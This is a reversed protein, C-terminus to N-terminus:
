CDGQQDRKLLESCGQPPTITRGTIFPKPQFASSTISQCGSIVPLSAAIFTSTLLQLFQRRAIPKM